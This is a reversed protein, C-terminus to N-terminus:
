ILILRFEDHNFKEIKIKESNTIIVSKGLWIRGLEDLKVKLKINNYSLQFYENANPFHNRADKTIYIFNREKQSKALKREYVISGSEMQLIRHNASKVFTKDTDLGVFHRRTLKSAVCTTGVGCFPDLIVDGQFSYLEILRRPLEIPFPAPHGVRKASEPNFTWISKTLELFDDRTITNEKDNSKRSYDNKSFILIYEHVDRLTPNSASKWSGWATSGGAGASKNWIIEGRMLFGIETMIDIVFKHYPIYPKRGVNAINICARGGPVLVRFTESFVSRLLDLYEELDLNEDYKKGVNYPPSTIMLHISSDPIKMDRSDSCIIRDLLKGVDNEIIETEKKTTKAQFLKRSYFKSSDHGERKSVGFNSTKTSKRKNM